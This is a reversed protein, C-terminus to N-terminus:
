VMWQERRNLRAITDAMLHRENVGDKLGSRVNPQVLPSIAGAAASNACRGCFICALQYQGIDWLKLADVNSVLVCIVSWM